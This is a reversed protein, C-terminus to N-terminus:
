TDARGTGTRAAVVRVVVVTVAACALLGVLYFGLGLYVDTHCNPGCSGSLVVAALLWLAVYMLVSSVAFVILALATLGLVRTMPSMPATRPPSRM